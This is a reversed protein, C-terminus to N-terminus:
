PTSTVYVGGSTVLDGDSTVVDSPTTLEGPRWVLKNLAASYVLFEGDNPTDNTIPISHLSDIRTQGPVTPSTVVDGTLAVIGGSGGGGVSSALQIAVGAWFSQDSIINSSEGADDPHLWVRLEYVDEGGAFDMWMGDTYADGTFSYRGGYKVWGPGGNKYFGILPQIGSPNNRVSFMMVVPGAPPKWTYTTADYFGGLDWNQTNAIFKTPTDTLEQTGSGHALFGIGATSDPEGGAAPGLIFKSLEESWLYADGEVPEGVGPEDIDRGWFKRADFASGASAYPTDEPRPLANGPITITSDGVFPNWRALTDNIMKRCKHLIREQYGM